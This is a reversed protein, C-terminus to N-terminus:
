AVEETDVYSEDAKAIGELVKFHYNKAKLFHTTGDPREVRIGVGERIHSPDITSLGDMHSGVLKKLFDLDSRPRGDLEIDHEIVVPLPHLEPVYKVGLEDCRAKVQPWSLDIVNGEQDVHTIRYVYFSCEGPLSNYTYRMTEPPNGGFFAKFEEDKRLDKTPTAGMILTDESVYGTIEGYIVEGKRLNGMLNKIVEFRFKEDGYYGQTTDPGSLIINRTGVLTTWETDVKPSIGFLKHYWRRPRETRELVHGVRGSTGHLKETLYCISGPTIIEDAKYAFQETDVHKPFMINVKRTAKTGGKMARLTQPTYYKECILHGNLTNFQFGEYLDALSVGTYLVSELSAFYGDSKVSRLNQARVRRNKPDFMGGGVKNGEEDYRPFLDNRTGYEESIKGDTPFYIGLEGEYADLGVVVQSGLVTALKLRDANPHERVNTLRAVIANYAM